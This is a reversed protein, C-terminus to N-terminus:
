GIGNDLPDLVGSVEFHTCLAKAHPCTWAGSSVSSEDGSRTCSAWFVALLQTAATQRVNQKKDRLRKAVQMVVALYLHQTVHRRRRGSFKAHMKCPALVQLKETHWKDLVMSAEDLPALSGDLLALSHKATATVGEIAAIRVDEECDM